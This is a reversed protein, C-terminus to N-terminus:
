RGLKGLELRADGLSGVPPQRKLEVEEGPQALLHEGLLPRQRRCAGSQGLEVVIRPEGLQRALLNIHAGFDVHAEDKGDLLAPM